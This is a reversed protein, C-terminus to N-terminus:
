GAVVAVVLLEKASDDTEGLAPDANWRGSQVPTISNVRLGARRCLADISDISYRKDRVVYETPLFDSDGLFQEKRYFVENYYLLFKPEFVNGTEEMAQSAPLKELAQIFDARKIPKQWSDLRALTPVANMVSLVVPANEVLSSVVQRLMLFDDDPSASSGIVDYLLIAGNQGREPVSQRADGEVVEVTCRESNKAAAEALSAVVEMAVVKVGRGALAIAHRGDGCGIDLVTKCRGIDTRNMLFDVESEAHRHWAHNADLTMRSYADMWTRDAGVLIEELKDDSIVAPTQDGFTCAVWEHGDLLDGLPWPRDKRAAKARLDEIESHSVYFKTFAQPTADGADDRRLSVPLYNIKEHLRRLVEDGREIVNSRSVPRRTASELARVALPNSTVLGWAFCDSFQWVSFLLRTAVRDNRFSVDVVLQSVWALRGNGNAIVAACYGILQDGNFACALISEDAEFLQRFIAATMVVPRGARPDERGWVGYNRSYVDCCADILEPEDLVASGSM